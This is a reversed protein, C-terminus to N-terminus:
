WVPTQLPLNLNCLQLLSTLLSLRFFWVSYIALENYETLSYYSNTMFVIYICLWLKTNLLSLFLAFKSVETPWWPSPLSPVPLSGLGHCGHRGPQHCGLCLVCVAIHSLRM